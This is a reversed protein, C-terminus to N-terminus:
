FHPLEVVSTIETIDSWLCLTRELYFERNPVSPNPFSKSQTLPQPAICIIGNNNASDQQGTAPTQQSPVPLATLM